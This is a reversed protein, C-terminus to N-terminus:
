EKKANNVANDVEQMDIRNVVDFSPM